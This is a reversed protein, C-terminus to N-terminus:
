QSAVAAGAKPSKQGAQKPSTPKSASGSGAAAPPFLAPHATKAHQRMNQDGAFKRKCLPDLCPTNRDAAPKQGSAQKGEKGAQGNQAAAAGAGAPKTKAETKVKKNASPQGETNPNAVDSGKRKKGQQGPQAATPQQKPKRTPSQGPEKPQASQNQKPAHALQKIKKEQKQQQTLKPGKNKPAAQKPSTSMRFASANEGEDSEEGSDVLMSANLDADDGESDDDPGEGNSAKLEDVISKLQQTNPKFLDSQAEEEAEGDSPLDDRGKIFTM